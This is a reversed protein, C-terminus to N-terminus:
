TAPLQPEVSTNVACHGVMSTMLLYIYILALSLVQMLQGNGKEAAVGANLYCYNNSYKRCKRSVSIFCILFKDVIDQIHIYHM